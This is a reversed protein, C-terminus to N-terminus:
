RGFNCKHVFFNFKGPFTVTLTKEVHHEPPYFFSIIRAYRVVYVGIIIRRHPWYWGLFIDTPSLLYYELIIFVHQCWKPVKKPHNISWHRDFSGWLSTMLQKTYSVTGCSMVHLWLKAINLTWYKQRFISLNLILYFMYIQSIWIDTPIWMLSYESVCISSLLWWFVCYLCKKM